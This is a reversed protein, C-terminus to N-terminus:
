KSLKDIAQRAEKSYAGNPEFELYAKYQEAAEAKAGKKEFAMGTYYYALAYASDDRMVKSLETLAIDYNGLYIYAIAMDTRVKVDSPNVLLAKHYYGAANAYQENAMYLNALTIMTPVDDTKNKLIGLYSDEAAKFQKEKESVPTARVVTAYYYGVSGAGALMLVAIIGVLAKLVPEEKLRRWFSKKFPKEEIREAAVDLTQAKLMMNLDSTILVVKSLPNNETIQHALALIVDDSNKLNLGQPINGLHDTSMVKIVTNEKTVVGETLKGKKALSFLMRSVERGRYIMTRDARSVKLRDLESLVTQPIIVEANPTSFVIDPDSLLASTDIIYITKM